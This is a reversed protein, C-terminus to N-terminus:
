YRGIQVAVWSLRHRKTGGAVPGYRSMRAFISCVHHASRSALPPYPGYNDSSAHHISPRVTATDPITSFSVASQLDALPEATHLSRGRTSRRHVEYPGAREAARDHVCLTSM